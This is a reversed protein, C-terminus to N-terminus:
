NIGDKDGTSNIKETILRACTDFDYVGLPIEWGLKKNLKFILETSQPVELGAEWLREVRCFVDEPKGEEYVEGNKMVIVRDAQVAENMYHTILIVTIGERNLRHITNMVDKRGMPDLMATSEDFIICKPKMAIVGAIAVRQKQGGSLKHPAHRAYERMGVTDLAENVRQRIEKSPVGLNEPGFAVDEEVITAVIQNDPNQFVMGIKKRVDFIDEDTLERGTIKNGEIYIDGSNPSLILNMLKATTSKGSGNHGLIAVFEGETIELSLNNVAFMGPECEEGTYTYCVNDFKILPEM